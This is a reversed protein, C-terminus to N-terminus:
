RTLCILFGATSMFWIEIIRICNFLKLIKRRFNLNMRPLVAFKQFVSMFMCADFSGLIKKTIDRFTEQVRTQKWSQIDSTKEKM